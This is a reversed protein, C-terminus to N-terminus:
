LYMAETFVPWVTKLPDAIGALAEGRGRHHSGSHDVQAVLSSGDVLVSLPSERRSCDGSANASASSFRAGGGNWRGILDVRTRRAIRNHRPGSRSRLIEM